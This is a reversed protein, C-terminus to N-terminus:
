ASPPATPGPRYHEAEGAPSTTQEMVLWGAAVLRNLRDHLFQPPEVWEQAIRYSTATEGSEDLRRVVTVLDEDQADM